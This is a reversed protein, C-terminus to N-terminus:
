AAAAASFFEDVGDSKFGKSQIEMGLFLACEDYRRVVIRADFAYLYRHHRCKGLSSELFAVHHQAEGPSDPPVDVRHHLHADSCRQVIPHRDLAHLEAVLEVRLDDVRHNLERQLNALFSEFAVRHARDDGDAIM